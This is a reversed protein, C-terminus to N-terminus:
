MLFHMVIIVYDYMNTIVFVILVTCIILYAYFFYQVWQQLKLLV